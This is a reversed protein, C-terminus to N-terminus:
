SVLMGAFEIICLYECVYMLMDLMVDVGVCMSPDTYGEMGVYGPLIVVSHDLQYHNALIPPLVTAFFGDLTQYPDLRDFKSFICTSLDRDYVSVQVVVVGARGILPSLM